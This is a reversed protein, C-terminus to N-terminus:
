NKLEIEAHKIKVTAMEVIMWMLDILFPITWLKQEIKESLEFIKLNIFFDELEDSILQKFPILAM